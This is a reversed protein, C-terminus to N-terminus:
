TVIPHTTSRIGTCVVSTGIRSGICETFVTDGTRFTRTVGNSATCEEGVVCEAVVTKGTREIGTILLFVANVCRLVVETIVSDGTSFVGAVVEVPTGVSWVCTCAVVVVYTVTFLDTTRSDAAHVSWVQDAIVTLRTCVVETVWLVSAVRCCCVARISIGAVSILEAYIAFSALGACRGVAVVSTLTRFVGANCRSPAVIGPDVAWRFDMVDCWVGSLRVNRSVEVQHTDSEVVLGSKSHDSRTLNGLFNKCRCFSLQTNLSWCSGSQVVHSHFVFHSLGNAIIAEFHNSDRNWLGSRHGDQSWGVVAVNWLAHARRLDVHGDAYRIYREAVSIVEEAVVHITYLLVCHRAGGVGVKVYWKAEVEQADLEESAIAVWAGKNGDIVDPGHINNGDFDDFPTRRFFLAVIAVEAGVVVAHTAYAGGTM